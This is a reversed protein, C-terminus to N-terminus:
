FTCAAEVSYAHDIESNSVFELGMVLSSYSLCSRVYEQLSTLTRSLLFNLCYNFSVQRFEPSGAVVSIFHRMPHSFLRGVFDVLNEQLQSATHLVSRLFRLLLHPILSLLCELLQLQFPINFAQFDLVEFAIDLSNFIWYHLM